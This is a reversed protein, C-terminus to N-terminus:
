KVTCARIVFVPGGTGQSIAGGDDVQAEFERTQELKGEVSVPKGARDKWSPRDLCYVVLDGTQVVASLKANQATGTIRVTQGLAAAADKSSALTKMDAGALVALLVIARTM